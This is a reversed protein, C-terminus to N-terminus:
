GDGPPPGDTTGPPPGDTAEPPGHRRRDFWRPRSGRRAAAKEPALAPAVTHDDEVVEYYRGYTRFAALIVGAAPLALFAFLIGGLAGGILAAAFAIPAPLSMTRATLRPSLFYNEIQQYVVIWIVVILADVPDYLLAVLVPVAGGIYTGVIPIFEAVIGEFIALPAAFPVGRWRLVAYMLVGNIVALLLRSYFYGGTQEIAQEWIFLIRRQRDPRFRSCVARRLQPGQAVMYFTFLAITLAQFIGGVIGTAVRVVGGLLSGAGTLLQSGYKRVQDEIHAQDLQIGFPKLYRALNNVLDPLSSILQRTGSVVAPILLAILAAIAVLVAVFVLGTAAGRRWGRQALYDVAPEIAFSLFLSIVIIQLFGALRHVISDAIGALVLGAVIAAVLWLAANRLFSRSWPVLPGPDPPEPRSAPSGEQEEGAAEQEEGAAEQEDGAAPPRQERMPM